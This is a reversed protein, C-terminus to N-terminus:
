HLVYQQLVGWCMLVLGLGSCVMSGYWFNRKKTIVAISCFVLGLEVGLEALDYRDGLHHMHESEESLERAKVGFETADDQLKKTDKKYQSVTSKWTDIESKVESRWALLDDDTKDSKDTKVQPRKMTLQTQVIATEYQYQRNKKAQFHNWENSAKSFEGTSKQQLALTENHARHSLLTVCALLAATVAITLTVYRDFPDHAHAAHAAHEGHELAQETNNM